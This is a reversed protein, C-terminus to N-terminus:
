YVLFYPNLINEKNYTLESKDVTNVVNGNAYKVVSHAACTDWESTPGFRPYIDVKNEAVYLLKISSGINILNPNKYQNIYNKTEENLHSSSAAIKVNEKTLDKKNIKLNKITKDNVNLKFSGIGEIGYYIENSVPISVIGFIPIENRCLGINVTFQGNKKLFEKTGDIPDVLWTYNYDKRLNYDLNKNEESIILFEENTEEKLNKNLLNLYDCILKNSELDALTLPSKDDKYNISFDTNYIELVKKNCNKILEIFGDVFKKQQYFKIM